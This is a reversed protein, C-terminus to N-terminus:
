KSVSNIKMRVFLDEFAQKHNVILSYIDPGM